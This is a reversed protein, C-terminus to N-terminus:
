LISQIEKIAKMVQQKYIIGLAGTLDQESCFVNVWGSIQVTNNESYEIKIYKLATMVSGNKWVNENKETVNKYGNKQLLKPIRIQLDNFDTYSQKLTTRVM